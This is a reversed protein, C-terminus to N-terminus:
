FQHLGRDSTKVLKIGVDSIGNLSEANMIHSLRLVVSDTSTIGLQVTNGSLQYLAGATLGNRSGYEDYVECRFTDVSLLSRDGADLVEMRVNLFKNSYDSNHRLEITAAINGPRGHSSGYFDFEITDCKHWEMENVQEFRHYLTGDCSVAMFFLLLLSIPNIRPRMAKDRGKTQIAM